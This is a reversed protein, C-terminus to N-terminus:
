ASSRNRTTMFRVTNSWTPTPRFDRRGRRTGPRERPDDHVARMEYMVDTQPDQWFRQLREQPLDKQPDGVIETRQVRSPSSWPGGRPTGQPWQSPLAVLEDSAMEADKLEQAESLSRKAHNLISSASSALVAANGAFGREKAEEWARNGRRYCYIGGAAGAGAWLLRSM